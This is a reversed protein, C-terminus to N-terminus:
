QPDLAAATYSASPSWLVFSDVGTMRAADIQARVQAEGYHVGRPSFDQLSPALRTGSREIADQYRTLVRAVLEAPQTIPTEVGHEGPGWYAPHITPMLYDAHRAMQPVDQSVLDGRDVSGGQVAVGQYAGRRRLETQTRALFGVLADSASGELGPIVVNSADDGPRRVDDWLIDDVGRGVADLAIDLNYQQVAPHAFNTFQGPADYPQGFPNQVVQGGHGASWAARALIPDRFAAVRGVVRGGREHLATVAQDLDYYGTVAAIDHARPVSTDFGVAGTEDKLDLLVSDIRGEDVMQLIAGRLAANSWAAASVHVSRMGPYLVPVVIDTTMSNGASDVAELTVPGAPPRPFEISFSGDSGVVVDRGAATLEAGRETIGVVSVPEDIAVADLVPPVDVEPPTTDLTFTWEVRAPSLLVRPVTVTLTHEGEELADIPQWRITDGDVEPEEIVEGNLHLEASTATEPSALEIEVELVALELANLVAGDELGTQTVEVRTGQYVLVVVLGVAGLGLVGALIAGVDLRRWPARSARRGHDGDFRLAVPGFRM